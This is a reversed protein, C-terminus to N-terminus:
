KTSRNITKKAMTLSEPLSIMDKKWLLGTEFRDGVRVTTNKMIQLAREEEASMVTDRKNIGATEIEFYRKVQNHLEELQRECSCVNIRHHYIANNNTQEGVMGYVCWELRTKTAIPEHPTGEVLKLPAGLYWNNLGILVKPTVNDYSKIPLNKLNTFHKKYEDVSLSQSLLGLDRVTRVNNLKFQKLQYIM